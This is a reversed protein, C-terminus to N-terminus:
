FSLYYKIFTMKKEFEIFMRQFKDQNLFLLQIIQEIRLVLEM